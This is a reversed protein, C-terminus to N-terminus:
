IYGLQRLRAEVRTEEERSFVASAAAPHTARWAVLERRLRTVAEPAAAACDHREAPDAVLDFLTEHGTGLDVVLKFRHDQVAELGRPLASFDCHPARAQLSAMKAAGWHQWEAFAVERGHDSPALRLPDASTRGALRSPVPVGASRCLGAVLDTTQVLGAIRGRRGEPARILCPVHILTQRVSAQHDALGGEGLHEGHDALIVVLTDERGDAAEIAGLLVGIHDDACALAGDYLDSYLELEQPSATAMAEWAPIGRLRRRRLYSTFHSVPRRSFRAEFAVPPGYYWHCEMLNVFLFYPRPWARLREAAFRVLSAGGADRRGMLAGFTRHWRSREDLTRRVVVEEFGAGLGEDWVLFPNASAAVCHYGHDALHTALTRQERSLAPTPFQAGHERPYVGTFLSAHSPITWPAPAIMRDYVLAGTAFEDIHPTTPRRYGYCGFRDRRASDVVVIVINAPRPM